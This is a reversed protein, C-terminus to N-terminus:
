RGCIARRATRRGSVAGPHRVRPGARGAARRRSRRHGAQDEAAGRPRAARRDDARLVAGLRRLREGPGGAGEEDAAPPVDDHSRGGGDGRGPAVGDRHGDRDPGRVVTQFNLLSELRGQAIEAQYPTYPTYWGPNELVNRLIVAPTVCDYYGHGIYSRFVRNRAAIGRLRRLYEHERRAPRCTSRRRCGSTPRFRDARDPRRAVARRDRRADRRARRRDPGIHRSQFSGSDLTTPILVTSCIPTRASPSHNMADTRHVARRRAPGDSGRLRGAQDRDDLVDHPDTNVTEPREALSRNVETVEGAVPSFLESVAKVSEITGFM